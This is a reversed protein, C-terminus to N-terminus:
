SFATSVHNGRGQWSFLSQIGTLPLTRCVSPFTGASVPAGCSFVKQEGLNDREPLLFTM